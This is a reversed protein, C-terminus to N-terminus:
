GRINLRLYKSIRTNEVYATTARYLLETVCARSTWKCEEMRVNVASRSFWRGGVVLAGVCCRGFMIWYHLYHLIYYCLIHM